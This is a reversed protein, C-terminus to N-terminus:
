ENVLSSMEITTVTNSKPGLSHSDKDAKHVVVVSSKDHSVRYRARRETPESLRSPVWRRMLLGEASRETQWEGWSAREGASGSVREGAGGSVREGASGSAREGASGSAREGTSGSVRDAMTGSRNLESSMM